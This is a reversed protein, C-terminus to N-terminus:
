QTCRLRVYDGWQGLPVARSVRVCCIFKRATCASMNM